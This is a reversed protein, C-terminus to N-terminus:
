EKNHRSNDWFRYTYCTYVLFTAFMADESIFLSFFFILQKDIKDKGVIEMNSSMERSFLVRLRSISFIM